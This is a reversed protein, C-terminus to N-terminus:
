ECESVDFNRKNFCEAEHLLDQKDLDEYRKSVYNKSASM